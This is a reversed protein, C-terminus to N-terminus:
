RTPRHEKSGALKDPADLWLQGQSTTTLKVMDSSKSSFLLWRLILYVALQLRPHSHFTLLSSPSFASSPHVTLDAMQVLM